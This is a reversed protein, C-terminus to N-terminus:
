LALGPRVLSSMSGMPSLNTGCMQNARGLGTWCELGDDM